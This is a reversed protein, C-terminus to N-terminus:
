KTCQELKIIKCGASALVFQGSWSCNGNASTAFYSYEGAGRSVSLTNASFCTTPTTSSSTTLEGIKENPSLSINIPLLSKDEEAIWFSISGAQCETMEIAQHSETGGVVLEGLWVCGTQSVGMWTTKGQSLRFSLIGDDNTTSISSPEASSLSSLTGSLEGDIYIKVPLSSEPLAKTYFSFASKAKELKISLYSKGGKKTNSSSITYNSSFNDLDVFRTRDRFSIYLYHNKDTSIDGNKGFVINGELDTFGKLLEFNSNGTAKEYEYKDFDDFLKVLAGELPNGDDDFVQIIFETPDYNFELNNECETFLLLTLFSIIINKRMKM